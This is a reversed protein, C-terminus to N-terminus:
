SPIMGPSELWKELDYRQHLAPIEVETNLLKNAFIPIVEKDGHVLFTVKPRGTRKHWALLEAQDAHASFGGITHIEANVPIEEGFIRVSEASDVIQRALTGYAAFGVFIVANNRGWLNHKLHHKVRGGTCMGSGAIIVAGGAFNNIAISDATERCFRLGPFMFPDQGSALTARTEEDFCEPHRQYIQTASIAMPSDLFVPLYPPLRRQEIGERLYYLLEQARELAFSPIIVNGGRGLTKRIAAYFEERTPELAKHLRDGYTTEMVVIDAPPPPAPDRIIARGSYGLDGSFLLRHPRGGQEIDLVIAASGLIHGADIFTAKIGPAIAVPQDYTAARGFFGFCNLVDVVNYIPEISAEHGHRSAKRAKYNAEDELLKASDLLVIRALECTAATAIIEGKFGQKVLLPIRGCHDLHAHTLLLYDIGAPDFGFPEANEEEMERGGQYLGCDILMKKGAAELLHCSGTVNQDAGHFELKM